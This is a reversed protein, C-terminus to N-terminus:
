FIWVLYPKLFSFMGWCLLFDLIQQTQVVIINRIELYIPIDLAMASDSSDLVNEDGLLVREARQFVRAM